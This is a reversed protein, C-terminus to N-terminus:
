DTPPATLLKWAAAAAPVQDILRRAAAEFEALQDRLDTM